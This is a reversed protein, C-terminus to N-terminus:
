RNEEKWQGCPTEFYSKEPAEKSGIRYVEGTEKRKFYIRQNIPLNMELAGTRCAEVCCGCYWCEDPYAVVPPKGPEANPIITQMRCINACANCGVCIEPNITVACTPGTPNAHVFATKVKGESM